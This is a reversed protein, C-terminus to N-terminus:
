KEGITTTSDWKGEYLKLATYPDNTEEASAGVWMSFACLAAVGCVSLAAHKGLQM